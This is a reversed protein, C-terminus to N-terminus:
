RKCEYVNGGWGRLGKCDDGGKRNCACWGQVWRKKDVNMPIYSIRTATQSFKKDKKCTDYCNQPTAMARTSYHYSKCLTKAKFLSVKGNCKGQKIQKAKKKKPPPPPPSPKAKQKKTASPQCYYSRANYHCNGDNFQITDASTPTRWLDLYCNAKYDGNPESYVTSRLWWPSGDSTKWTAQQPSSSKMSYKTCGGCGNQPRTVDIIWHPARLPSASSVFTKWDGRSQPSFIKMGKPCSNKQTSKSVALCETCKVLMGASYKGTLSVQSCKCSAPGAKPKLVNLTPQCYYDKSHYNCNADNFTLSNENSPKGGLGLFCNAHYDGTPEGYKSGRLWWPSGDSTRWAKQQRNGSNMASNSKRGGNSPKTV